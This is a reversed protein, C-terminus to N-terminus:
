LCTYSYTLGNGNLAANATTITLVGETYYAESSDIAVLGTGSKAIGGNTTILAIYSGSRILIAQGIGGTKIPERTTSGNGTYSASPKNGTHHVKYLLGKSEVVTYLRLLDALTATESSLVLQNRNNDDVRNQIVVTNDSENLHYWSKRGAGTNSLIVAPMSAKEITLNDKMTDGAKNVAYNTYNGTHLVNYTKSAGDVRNNIRLLEALSKTNPGLWMATRNTSDDQPRGAFVATGDSAASFYVDRQASTNTAKIESEGAKAVTLNGTMTDGAKKVANKALVVSDDIEQASKDFVTVDTLVGNILKQETHAM